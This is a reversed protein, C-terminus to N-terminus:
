LLRFRQKRDILKRGTLGDALTGQYTQRERHGPRGDICGVHLLFKQVSLLDFLHLLIQLRQLLLNEQALLGRRNRGVDVLIDHGIEDLQAVIAVLHHLAVYQLVGRDLLNYIGLHFVTKHVLQVLGHLFHLNPPICSKIDVIGGEALHLIIGEEMAEGVPKHRERNVM